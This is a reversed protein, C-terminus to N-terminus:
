ASAKFGCGLAQNEDEKGMKTKPQMEGKGSSGTSLKEDGGANPKKRCQKTTWILTGWKNPSENGGISKTKM